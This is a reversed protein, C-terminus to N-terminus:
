DHSLAIATIILYKNYASAQTSIIISGSQKLKPQCVCLCVCVSPQTLSTVLLGSAGEFTVCSLIKNWWKKLSIFLNMNSFNKGGVELLKIQATEGIESLVTRALM